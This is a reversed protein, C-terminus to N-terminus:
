WRARRTLRRSDSFCPSAGVGDPPSCLSRRRWSEDSPFSSLSNASRSTVLRVGGDRPSPLGDIDGADAHLFGLGLVVAVDQDDSVGCGHEVSSSKATRSAV